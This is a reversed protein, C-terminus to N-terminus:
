ALNLSYGLTWDPIGWAIAMAVKDKHGNGCSFDLTEWSIDLIYWVIILRILLGCGFKPESSSKEFYKIKDIEVNQCCIKLLILFVLAISYIWVEKM